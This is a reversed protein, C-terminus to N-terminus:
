IISGRMGFELFYSYLDPVQSEEADLPRGAPFPTHTELLNRLIAFCDSSQGLSFCM